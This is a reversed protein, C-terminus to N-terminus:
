NENHFKLGNIADEKEKTLIKVQKALQEENQQNNQQIQDRLEQIEIRLCQEQYEFNQKQM